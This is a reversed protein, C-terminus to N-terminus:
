PDCEALASNDSVASVIATIFRGGDKGVLMQNIKGKVANGTIYSSFTERQVKKVLSNKNEM